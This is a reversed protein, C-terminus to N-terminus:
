VFCLHAAKCDPGISVFESTVPWVSILYWIWNLETVWNHGIRQSGMFRLRGPRGTWWWCQLKGWSTDMSNTIGDLWRMRQWGRRRRGGTGGADPDKGIHWTKVHPPWLVPTEAEVDTRGTFVWSQDEKPHVPQIEKCDLPSELTKELVVTWFYWNKLAWSEECDLEWMWVHGSSFCYGKNVSRQQCLLNWVMNAVMNAVKQKSLGQCSEIISMRMSSVRHDLILCKRLISTLTWIEQLVQWFPPRHNWPTM